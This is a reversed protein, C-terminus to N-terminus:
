LVQFVALTSAVSCNSFTIDDIAIDGTWPFEQNGMIGEFKVNFKEITNEIVLTQEEWKETNTTSSASNLNLVLKAAGVGITTYVNLDGITSGNMNSYFSMNCSCGVANDIDQFPTYWPSAIIARDGPERPKSTEIFM